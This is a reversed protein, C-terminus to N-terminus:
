CVLEPYPMIHRKSYLALVSIAGVPLTTHDGNQVERHVLCRNVPRVLSLKRVRGENMM